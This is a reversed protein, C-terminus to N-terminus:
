VDRDFNETYLSKASPQCTWLNEVTITWAFASDTYVASYILTTVGRLSIFHVSKIHM